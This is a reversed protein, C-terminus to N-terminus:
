GSAERNNKKAKIQLGGIFQTKLQITHMVELFLKDTNTLETKAKDGFIVIKAKHVMFGTLKTSTHENEPIDIRISDKDYYFVKFLHEVTQSDQSWGTSAVLLFLTLLFLRREFSNSIRRNHTPSKYDGKITNKTTM